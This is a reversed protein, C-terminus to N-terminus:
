SITSVLFLILSAGFILLLASSISYRLTKVVILILIPFAIIWAMIGFKEVLETAIVWFASIIMSAIINGEHEPHLLYLLGLVILFVILFTSIM